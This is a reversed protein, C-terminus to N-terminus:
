SLLGWAGETWVYTAKKPDRQPCQALVLRCGTQRYLQAAKHAMLMAVHVSPEEANITVPVIIEGERGRVIGGADPHPRPELDEEELLRLFRGLAIHEHEDLPVM